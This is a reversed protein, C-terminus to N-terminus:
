LRKDAHDIENELYSIYEELYAIHEQQTTIVRNLFSKSAGKLSNLLTTLNLRDIMANLTQKKVRYSM